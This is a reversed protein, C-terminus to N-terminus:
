AVNTVTETYHFIKALVQGCKSVCKKSGLKKPGLIKKALFTKPCFKKLGFIKKLTTSRVSSTNTSQGETPYLNVTKSGSSNVM